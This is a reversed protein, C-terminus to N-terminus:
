RQRVYESAKRSSRIKKVKKGFPCVKICIGCIAAGINPIKAFEGKLKDVCQSFYLADNRNKYHDKTSIGKIAEAPCADRCSMCKGCRNTVPGDTILPADTLITALRVRSGYQPTILLLNKGQWGLGAMRAVAKHSIAGYYKRQDLVQSAPIPLGNFGEMQLTVATRFAIQDLIRNATQYVAAYIPTPRDSIMDFVSRPLQIAVSIARTYPELLNAPYVKLKRLSEIDAVGTLDAGWGTIKDKLKDTYSGTLNEGNIRNTTVQFTPSNKLGIQSIRSSNDTGSAAFNAPM